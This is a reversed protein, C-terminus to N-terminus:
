KKFLDKDEIDGLVVINHEANFKKILEQEGEWVLLVKKRSIQMPDCLIVGKPDDVDICDIYSADIAFMGGNEHKFVTIDVEGKTDPDIVTIDQVYKAKNM